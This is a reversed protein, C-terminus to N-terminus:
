FANLIGLIELIGVTPFSKYQLILKSLYISDYGVIYLAQQM